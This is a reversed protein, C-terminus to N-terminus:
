SPRWQRCQCNTHFAIGAVARLEASASEQLLCPNWDKLGLLLSASLKCDFAFAVSCVASISKCNLCQGVRVGAILEAVYKRELRLLTMQEGRSDTGCQCLPSSLSSGQGDKTQSKLNAGAKRLPAHLPAKDFLCFGAPASVKGVVALGRSCSRRRGQCARPAWGCTGELHHLRTCTLLLTFGSGSLSFIDEIFWPFLNM